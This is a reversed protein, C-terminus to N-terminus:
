RLEGSTRPRNIVPEFLEDTSKWMGPDAPRFNEGSPLSHRTEDENTVNSETASKQERRGFALAFIIKSMGAIFFIWMAIWFIEELFTTSPSGEVLRDNPPFIVGIFMWVPILTLGILILRVGLEIGKRRTDASGLGGRAVVDDIGRLDFGCKTCYQTNDQSKLESCNPCYM